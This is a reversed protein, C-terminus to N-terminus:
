AKLSNKKSFMNETHKNANTVIYNTQYPQMKRCILVQQNNLALGQKYM